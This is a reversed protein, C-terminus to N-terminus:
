GDVERRLRPGLQALAVLEAEKLEATGVDRPAAGRDGKVRADGAPVKTKRGPVAVRHM